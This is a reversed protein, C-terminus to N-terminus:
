WSAGSLWQAHGAARLGWSCFLDMKMGISHTQWLSKVPVAPSPTGGTIDTPATDEAHYAAQDGVRFEPTSSFGSVFSASEIVSVTGAALGTSAIIPVTFQPGANLKLTNAQAQAAVVVANKGGGNAALAAFLKSLDTTMAVPGGGTAATVPAIGAFLGAPASASAADASFMKQDLAFGVAEELTQRTIEEINSSTVQEFTFVVLVSLKRPQLIAANSFVLQRAPAPAGEAVWQGAGAANVVRGPVRFEAIGDMNLKLGREILEAAASVSTASQVLDYIAVRALETAWGTTSTTAPTTASRRLIELTVNDRAFMQEAIRAPTSKKAFARLHATAARTLYTAPRTAELGLDSPLPGLRNM